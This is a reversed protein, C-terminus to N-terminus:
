KIIRGFTEITELGSIPELPNISGDLPVLIAKSDVAVKMANYYQTKVDIGKISSKADNAYKTRLATNGTKLVVFDEIIKAIEGRTVPKYPEFKEGTIYSFFGRDKLSRISDMYLSGSIDKYYTEGTKGFKLYQDAKFVRQLLDAVEDRQVSISFIINQVKSTDIGTRRIEDLVELRDAAQVQLAEGIKLVETYHKQAEQFNGLLFHSDGLTLHAMAMRPNGNVIPQLIGVATRANEKGKEKLAIRLNLVVIFPDNQDKNMNAFKKAQGYDGSVFYLYAYGADIENITLKDKKRLTDAENLQSEATKLLENKRTIDSVSEATMINKKAKEFMGQIGSKEGPAMRGCGISFITFGALCLYTIIKVKM